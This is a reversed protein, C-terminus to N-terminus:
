GLAAQLEAMHGRQHRLMAEMAANLPAGEHPGIRIPADVDAAMLAAQVHESGRRMEEALEAPTREKRRRVQSANWRASDFAVAGAGESGAPPPAAIVAAM